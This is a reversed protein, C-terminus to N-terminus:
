ENGLCERTTGMDALSSWGAPVALRPVHHAETVGEMVTTRRRTSSPVSLEAKEPSLPNFEELKWM